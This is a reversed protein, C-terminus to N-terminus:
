AVCLDVVSRVTQKPDGVLNVGHGGDDFGTEFGDSGPDAVIGVKISEGDEDLPRRAGKDVGFCRLAIDIQSDDILSM